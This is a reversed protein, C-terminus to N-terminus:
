LITSNYYLQAIYLNDRTMYPCFRLNEEANSNKAGLHFPIAQIDGRAGTPDDMNNKLALNYLPAIKGGVSRTMYEIENPQSEVSAEEISCTGPEVRNNFITNTM